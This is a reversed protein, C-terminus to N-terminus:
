KWADQDVVDLSRLIKRWGTADIDTPPSVLRRLNRRVIRQGSLGLGRDLTRLIATNMSIDEQNAVERVRANVAEPVDRVTYQTSPKRKM